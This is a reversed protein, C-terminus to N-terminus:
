YRPMKPDLTAAWADIGGAMSVAKEWGQARLYRAAELSRIGSHCFVVVAAAKDADPEAMGTFLQLMPIHQAGPLASIALEQAERVDVLKVPEGADLKAKVERVDIELM